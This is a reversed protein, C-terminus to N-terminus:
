CHSLIKNATHEVTYNDLLFQYGNEGMEKRLQADVLITDLKKDFNELDGSEVWLGYGNEEAIAGIDTNVDTAMMIPIRNELYSLLRSPYNPITFRHDLFILGVDASRMLVDYEVKPLAKFLKANKPRHMAFWEQIRGFETGSGAVVFFTDNRQENSVIAEMLFDVGQPKGLNGGYICILKDTPIGYKEKITQADITKDINTLEVSNPCVEVRTADISPNHKIIYQVNAPSMCGIYDSLQYLTEEKRRFMKYIPSRKSFMGLDVANQPFIDKLLLYSKTKYKEKVWKIVKNFTIPPTSYLVLDFHVNALHQKIASMYQRELLLTGIGKEVVNTKQINLTKVGLIHASGSQFLETQRGTQREFPVVIYVEHGDRVFRRMLDTYIGRQEIDTIRSLTLFLITM